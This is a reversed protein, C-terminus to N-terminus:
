NSHFWVQACPESVNLEAYEIQKEDILLSENGHILEDEFVFHATANLESSSENFRDLSSNECNEDLPQM